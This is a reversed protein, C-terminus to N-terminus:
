DWLFLSGQVDPAAALEANPSALLREVWRGSIDHKIGLEFVAEPASYGKASLEDFEDRIKQAIYDSLVEKLSPVYLKQGRWEAVVRRAAPDGILEVLQQYRLVGAPTAGGERMPVPWEQGRWTSILRAAGEWGAIRVLDAATRPYRSYRSLERLLEPTVTRM